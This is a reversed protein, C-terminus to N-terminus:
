ARNSARTNSPSIASYGTKVVRYTTRADPRRWFGPLRERPPDPKTVPPQLHLTVITWQARFLQCM